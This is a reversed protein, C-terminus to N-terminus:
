SGVRTGLLHWTSVLKLLMMGSQVAVKAVPCRPSHLLNTGEALALFESPSRLVGGIDRVLNPLQLLDRLTRSDHRDAM